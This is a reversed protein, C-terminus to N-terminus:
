SSGWARDRPPSKGINPTGLCLAEALPGGPSMCHPKSEARPDGEWGNTVNHHRIGLGVHGFSKREDHEGGGGVEGGGFTALSLSPTPMRKSLSASGESCNDGELPTMTLLLNCEDNVLGRGHGQLEQDPEYPSMFGHQHQREFQELNPVAIVEGKM